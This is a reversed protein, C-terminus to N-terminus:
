AKIINMYSLWKIIKIIKIAEPHREDYNYVYEVIVIKLLNFHSKEENLKINFLEVNILM